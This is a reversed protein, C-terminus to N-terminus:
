LKTGDPAIAGKGVAPIVGGAADVVPDEFKGSLATGVPVSDVVGQGIVPEAQKGVEDVGGDLVRLKM